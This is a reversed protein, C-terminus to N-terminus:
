AGGKQWDVASLLPSWLDDKKKNVSFRNLEKKSPNAQCFRLRPTEQIVAFPTQESGEGMELVAATALADAVNAMTMKLKRGFIDKKGIYNELPKFGSYAIAVGTTGWHLPLTRSDTIIVGLKKIKHKKRLHARAKNATEQPNEPWLIYHGKANSEDVGSSPALVGNKITLMVGYKNLKQPLYYEAEKKIIEEKKAKDVKVLRGECIAAVKSTIAVISDEKLKPLYEDLLATLNKDRSPVVRRTKIPIVKM